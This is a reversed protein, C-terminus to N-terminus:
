YCRSVTSIIGKGKLKEHVAEIEDFRRTPLVGLDVYVLRRFKILENLLKDAPCLSKFYAETRISPVSSDSPIWHSHPFEINELLPCSSSMHALLGLSPGTIGALLLQTLNQFTSFPALPFSFDRPALPYEELEVDSEDHSFFTIIAKITPTLWDLIQSFYPDSYSSSTTLFLEALDDPDDPLALYCSKLAVPRPGQIVIKDLPLPILPMSETPPDGFWVGELYVQQVCSLEPSEVASLVLPFPTRIGRTGLLTPIEFGVFSVSLLTNSAAPGIAKLVKALDSPTEFLLEVIQARPCMRLVQLYWSFAPTCGRAHYPLKVDLDQHFLTSVWSNLGALCWVEKGRTRGNLGLGDVLQRAVEWSILKHLKLLFPRDYLYKRAVQSFRRSVLSIRALTAARSSGRRYWWSEERDKIHSIIVSILENPLSNLSM